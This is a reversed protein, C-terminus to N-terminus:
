SDEEQDRMREFMRSYIKKDAKDARKKYLSLEKFAQEISQEEPEMAKAMRLDSESRDLDNLKMYAYGRRYFAKSNERLDLSKTTREVAKRWNELKLDIAAMNNLTSIKLEKVEETQNEDLFSSSYQAM